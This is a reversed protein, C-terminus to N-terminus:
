REISMIHVRTRVRPQLPASVETKKGGGFRGKAVYVMAGAPRPRPDPAAISRAPMAVSVGAEVLLRVVVPGREGLDRAGGIVKRAVRLAEEDLAARNSGKVVRVHVPAGAEQVVAELEVREWVAPEEFADQAATVQLDVIRQKDIPDRSIELRHDTSDNPPTAAPDRRQAVQRALLRLPDDSTVTRVSPQFAAGLRREVARWPSDPPLTPNTDSPSAAAGLASKPFLDIDDGWAVSGLGVGILVLLNRTM